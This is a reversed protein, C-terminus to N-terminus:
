QADEGSEDDPEGDEEDVDVWVTGMGGCYSCRVTAWEGTGRGAAKLCVKCSRGGSKTCTKTGECHECTVLKKAM